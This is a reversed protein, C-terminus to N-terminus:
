NDVISKRAAASLSSFVLRYSHDILEKILDPALTGADTYLSNWHRKNMHYGPEIHEHQERLEEAWAPECKLNLRLPIHDIGMLAFIKGGVRYVVTGSGFPTDETVGAKCLCYERIEEANM